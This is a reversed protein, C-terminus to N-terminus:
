GSEVQQILNRLCLPDCPPLPRTTPQQAHAAAQLRRCPDLPPDIVLAESDHQRKHNVRREIWSRSATM